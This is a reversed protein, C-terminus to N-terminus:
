CVIGLFMAELKCGTPNSILGQWLTLQYMINHICHRARLVVDNHQYEVWDIISLWSFCQADCIYFHCRQKRALEFSTLEVWETNNKDQARMTWRLVELLTHDELRWFLM